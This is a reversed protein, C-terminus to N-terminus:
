HMVHHVRPFRNTLRARVIFRYHGARHWTSDGKAKCLQTGRRTTVDVVIRRRYISTANMDPFCMLIMHHVLGM